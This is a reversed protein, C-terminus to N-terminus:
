TQTERYAVIDNPGGTHFWAFFSPKNAKFISGDRLKVSYRQDRDLVPMGNIEIWPETITYNETAVGEICSYVATHTMSRSDTFSIDKGDAIAKFIEALEGAIERQEEDFIM